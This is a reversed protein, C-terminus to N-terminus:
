KKVTSLLESVGLTLDPFAINENSSRIFLVELINVKKRLEVSVNLVLLNRSEAISSIAILRLRDYKMGLVKFLEVATPEDNTWFFATFKLYIHYGQVSDFTFNSNFLFNGVNRRFRSKVGFVKTVYNTYRMFLIAFTLMDDYFRSGSIDVAQHFCLRNM